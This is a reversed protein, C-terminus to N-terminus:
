IGWILSICYIDKESKSCKVYYEGFDVETPYIFSTKEWVPLASSIVIFFNQNKITEKFILSGSLSTDMESLKWTSFRTM